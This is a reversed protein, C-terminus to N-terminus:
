KYHLPQRNSEPPPSKCRRRLGHWVASILWAVGACLALFIWEFWPLGRSRSVTSGNPLEYKCTGGPPWLGPKDQISSGEPVKRFADICAVDSYQGFVWTGAFSLTLL